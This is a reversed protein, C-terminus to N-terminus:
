LYQKVLGELQADEFTEALYYVRRAFPQYDHSLNELYLAQQQLREMNGLCVLEYLVELEKRPPPVFKVGISAQNAITLVATAPKPSPLARYRWQLGLYKQLIAFVQEAEVPKPMFDDCGVRHCQAQDVELVSASVAIIPIHALRPMARIVAVAEFGMMVPMVMDMFILDPPNLQALELAQQGNEALAIEFGLPELLNLLVQRNESRDDVVLIRRSDGIYGVIEQPRTDKAPVPSEGMPFSVEFWFTSGKGPESHVQIQSDMLEVLHQSIALGLGTGTARKQTDGVQEFPLFITKLEEPTIGVGTDQVEFRLRVMRDKELTENEPNENSLWGEELACNMVQFTVAGQGTFKVANGLLNLLVQRLRKEDAQIATPLHSDPQHIFQINKEFANMRMIGTIGELFAPLALAQPYLEMKQAEVKALDLLDNILTLLHKGSNYITQLGDQQLPALDANRQLIQSYGLIGNLPTRLEHSMNALFDSKARNAAEAQDKAIALEYTRASVQAELLRSHARIRNLRWYYSLYFGGFIVIVALGRFWWTEWWPPNITLHLTVERNSWVRDDNSGRVRLTYNGPPLSSYNIFRRTSDVENWDTELGELRYSYRNNEPAAFSLAAFEFSLFNQDHELQIEATDWIPAKLPSNGGVPISQNFLRIDTLIVPPKYPNDRMREPYFATLGNAGGFLMEGQESKYFSFFNFQNGQLGDSADYNLFTKTQPNFRSLGKLSSIWLNGTSDELMGQLSNGPLGDRETYRTFKESATVFQLLGGSTALWINGRNDPYINVVSVKPISSPDTPNYYYGVFRGTEPNLRNLFGDGGVWVDDSKAAYVTQPTTKRVGPPVNAHVAFSNIFRQNLRDFYYLTEGSLVWFNKKQDQSIAQIGNPRAAQPNMGPESFTQIQETNRDFRYLGDIGDFWLGGQEDPYIASIALTSPPLLPMVKQSYIPYHKFSGDRPNFRTLNTAGGTWIVGGPEQYIAEIQTPLFSNSSLPNRRYFTFQTQNLDTLDVGSNANGIWLLGERDEYIVWTSGASLSDPNAVDNLYHAIFKKTQPDFVYIGDKPTQSGTWILGNRNRVISNLKSGSPLETGNQFIQNAEMPPMYRTFQSTQRDFQYLGDSGSMWLLGAEGAALDTLQLSLRPSNEAGPQPRYCRTQGTQPDFKYLEDSVFWVVGAAADWVM